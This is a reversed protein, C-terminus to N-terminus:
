LALATVRDGGFWNNVTQLARDSLEQTFLVALRKKPRSCAVYFLNRNRIFAQRKAAPVAESAFLELMEGFNYKNWGRGVVILVNEFQAGKVGHKTEFPSHGSHYRFLAGIESYSVQRLKKIEELSPPMPDDGEPNFALLDRERELLKDPLRPKRSARLHDIVDGVSGTERLGILTDMSVAWDAKEGASRLLPRGGGLHEFMLGFKKAAYAECAPELHDVFYAIYSHEKRTFADNYRFVRRLSPYGQEDALVRHTLMLIKTNKSSLDWGAEILTARVNALAQQGIALPLDGKWHNGKQREGGWNNSHFVRIEGPAEPDVVFQPLEPRMRNLVDVVAQVSRFNARKGIERVSDHELAGCGEDYINQWHDGFFGFLPAGSKGLFHTKIAEVWNSDTDQYEDILIIPYLLSVIRRFKESEMLRITLPLVDDHHLTIQSDSVTRYGLSYEVKRTGIGDTEELLENWKPIEVVYERLQRQFGRILSWCFAHNTECLVLPNGDVRDIIEDKAVNTFTICAVRQGQRQLRLECRDVLFELAKVLSYTKGAGAGAELRFSQQSDLCSYVEQLARESAIEASNDADTM